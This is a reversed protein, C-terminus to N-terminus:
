PGPWFLAVAAVVAGALGFLLGIRGLLRRSGLVAVIGTKFLVNSLSAALIFRWATNAELTGAQVMQSLSLTIADMDTLGSALAVLLLGRSGFHDRAAAAGLLVLAYLAAFVLAARLESPNRQEPANSAPATEKPFALMGIGGVALLIVTFPLWAHEFLKPATVGMLIMVRLFVVTSALMIAFAAAAESGAAQRSRRAYSVTTATSSILGGLLGGAVSGVREGFFKYIVYGALGIGVILVVMLWIRRPNLVEYPGYNQDPLVPLIVLTILVFQVIVRFDADALKGALAQLQPKLHLLIVVCGCVIIPIAHPGATLYAGLLFMVAMAVETTLGPDDPKARFVGAAVMGALGVLGAAVIWGGFQQGVLGALFGMLTVLPFTRFGALAARSRERQLGVLLGLGLALGLRVLIDQTDM